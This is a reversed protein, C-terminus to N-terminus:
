TWPYFNPLLITGLVIFGFAWTWFWRGWREQEPSIWTAIYWYLPPCSSLFRTAVNVHMMTAAVLTMFAWHYIYPHTSSPPGEPPWRLTKPTGAGNNNRPRSLVTNPLTGSGMPSIIARPRHPLLGLTIASHWDGSAWTWVGSLSLLLVPASM